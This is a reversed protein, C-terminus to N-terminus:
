SYNKQLTPTGPIIQIPKFPLSDILYGPWFIQPIIIINIAKKIFSNNNVINNVIYVDQEKGFM